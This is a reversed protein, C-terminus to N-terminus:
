ISKASAGRHTPPGPPGMAWTSRSLSTRRAMEALAGAVATTLATAVGEAEGGASRLPRHSRWAHGAQAAGARFRRDDREGRRRVGPRRRPDRGGRGAGARTHRRLLRLEPRESFFSSYLEHLTERDAATAARIVAAGGRPHRLQGVGRPFGLGSYYARAPENRTETTLVLFERKLGEAAAVLLARGIGRRRFEPQVYLDGLYRSGSTERGASRMASRTATRRPSCPSAARSCCGSSTRPLTTWESGIPRSPGSRISPRGSSACPTSIRRQAQRIKM